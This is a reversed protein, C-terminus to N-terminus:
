DGDKKGRIRDSIADEFVYIFMCVTAFIWFGFGEM